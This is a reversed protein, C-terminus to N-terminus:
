GLAPQLHFSTNYGPNCAEHVIIIEAAAEVQLLPGHGTVSGVSNNSNAHQTYLNALVLYVWRHPGESSWHARLLIKLLSILATSSVTTVSSVALSHCPDWRQHGIGPCHPVAWGRGFASSVLGHRAFDCLANLNSPVEAPWRICVGQEFCAKRYVEYLCMDATFIAQISLNRLFVEEKMKNYVILKLVIKVRRIPTESTTVPM